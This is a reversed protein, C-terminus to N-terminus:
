KAPLVTANDPKVTLTVRPGSEGGGFRILSIVGLQTNVPEHATPCRWYGGRAYYLAVVFYTGAPLHGSVTGGQRGLSRSQIIDFGDHPGDPTLQMFFLRWERGNGATADYVMPRDSSFVPKDRCLWPEAEFSYAPPAAFVAAFAVVLIASAVSASRLQSVAADHFDHKGISHRHSHMMPM